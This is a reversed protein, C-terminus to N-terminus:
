RTARSRVSGSRRAHHARRGHGLRRRAQSPLEALSCDVRERLIHRVDALPHSSLFIGLTEKEMALLEVREFEDAPM